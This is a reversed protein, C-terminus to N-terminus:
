FDGFLGSSSCGRSIVGRPIIVSGKNLALGGFM